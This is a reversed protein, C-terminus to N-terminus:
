NTPDVQTATAPGVGSIMVWVEENKAGDYHVEGGRHIVFSGEPVPVTNNEPDYDAGTGVWWTGRLVMIFRDNQHFHPRSFSGPQFKNIYVYYELGDRDGYLSTSNTPAPEQDRWVFDDPTIIEIADPNLEAAESMSIVLLTAIASMAYSLKMQNSRWPMEKDTIKIGGIFDWL